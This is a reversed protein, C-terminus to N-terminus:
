CTKILGKRLAMNYYLEPYRRTWYFFLSRDTWDVEKGKILPLLSNGYESIWGGQSRGGQSRGGWLDVVKLDVVGSTSLELTFFDGRRPSSPFGNSKM